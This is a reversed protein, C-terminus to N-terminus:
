KLLRHAYLSGMIGGSVDMLLDSGTDLYYDLGDSFSTVHVLLEYIEWLLGVSIAFGLAVLISTHISPVSQNKYFYYFLIATMAVCTGALFHVLMDFWWITWYLYLYVALFNLAGVIVLLAFTNKFLRTQIM